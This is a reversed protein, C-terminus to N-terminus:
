VVRAFIDELRLVLEDSLSCKFETIINAKEEESWSETMYDEYLTYVENLTFRGDELLYQEIYKGEPSVIWYERVGCKEYVDKKDFRDKKISGPSLVEVVLDPTGHVGNYKVKDPDCVVMGDPVFRDTDTLYLDTGDNFVSCKKNASSNVYNSFLIFINGAIRNHNVSPRPSMLVIKGNILEDWPEDHYVTKVAGANM